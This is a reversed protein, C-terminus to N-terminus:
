SYLKVGEDQTTVVLALLNGSAYRGCAIQRHEVILQGSTLMGALGSIGACAAPQVGLRDVAGVVVKWLGHVMNEYDVVYDGGAGCHECAAAGNVLFM